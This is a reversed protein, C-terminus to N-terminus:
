FSSDPQNLFAVEEERSQRGLVANRRPFRGFRAIIDRHRVAYEHVKAYDAGMAKFLGVCREQDGLAESHMLPMYLIQRRDPTLEGGWGQALANEAIDRAMADTAFAQPSDRFMNRPFQDLLVVLAVAGDASAAWGELAGAAAQDYTARFRRTLEDDFELDKVYWKGPGAEDFWFRLIEAADVALADATASAM